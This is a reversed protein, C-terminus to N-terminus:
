SCRSRLESSGPLARTHLSDANVALTILPTSGDVSPELQDSLDSSLLELQRAFRVVAEGAPTLEVPRM